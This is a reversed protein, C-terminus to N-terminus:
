RVGRVYLDGRPHGGPEVHRFLQQMVPLLEGPAVNAYWEGPPPPEVGCISHPNRPHTACTVLVIGAPKLTLWLNYVIARWHPTHEFVETCLTVDFAGRFEYSPSWSAADAVIDVDDGANADLVVYDTNFSFLARPSGNVDRGGLDLAHRALALQPRIQTELWHWAEPHM